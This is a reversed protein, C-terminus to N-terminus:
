QKRAEWDTRETPPVDQLTGNKASNCSAFTPPSPGATGEARIAHAYSYMIGYGHAIVDYFHGAPAQRSRDIHISPPPSLRTSRDHRQGRGHTRPMDFLLHRLTAPASSSRARLRSRSLRWWIPGSRGTYFAEDENLHGRAVHARGRPALAMGNKFFDSRKLPKGSPQDFMDRRCGACPLLLLLLLTVSAKM